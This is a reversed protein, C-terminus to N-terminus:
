SLRRANRRREKRRQALLRIKSNESSVERTIMTIVAIPPWGAPVPQSRRHDFSMLRRSTEATTHVVGLLTMPITLPLLTPQYITERHTVM